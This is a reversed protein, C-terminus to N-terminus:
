KKVVPLVQTTKLATYSIGDFTGLLQSQLISESEVIGLKDELTSQAFGLVLRGAQKLVFKAAGNKVKKDVIRNVTLDQIYRRGLNFGQHYACDRATNQRFQNCLAVAMVESGAFVAASELRSDEIEKLVASNIAARYSVIAVIKRVVANDAISTKKESEPAVQGEQQEAYLANIAAIVKSNVVISEGDIIIKESEEAQSSSLGATLTLALVLILFKFM